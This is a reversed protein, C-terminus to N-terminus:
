SITHISTKKEITNTQVTKPIPPPGKLGDRDSFQSKEPVLGKSSRLGTQLNLNTRQSGTSFFWLARDTETQDHRDSLTRPCM